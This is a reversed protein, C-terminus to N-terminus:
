SLSDVIEQRQQLLDHIEQKWFPETGWGPALRAFGGDAKQRACWATFHIFRIWGMTFDSASHGLSVPYGILFGTISLTVISLVNIWHCWRVPLEWVYRKFKCQQIAM